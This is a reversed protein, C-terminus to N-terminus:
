AEGAIQVQQIYAKGSGSDTIAAIKLSGRIVADGNGGGRDILSTSINRGYDNEVIIRNSFWNEGAGYQSQDAGSYVQKVRKYTFDYYDQGASSLSVYDGAQFPSSTGQPFNIYTYTTATSISSVISSTNTFALTGVTGSPIAFDNTTATPNTGIAVFTNQSAAFIRIATSKGDIPESQQSATGTTISTGTGVPQLTM